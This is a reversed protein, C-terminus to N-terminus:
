LDNLPFMQGDAVFLNIKDKKVSELSSKEFIFISRETINLKIVQQTDIMNFIIVNVTKIFFLFCGDGIQYRIVLKHTVSKREATPYVIELTHNCEKESNVFLIMSKQTKIMNVDIVIEFKKCTIANATELNMTTKNGSCRELYLDFFDFAMCNNTIQVIVNILTPMGVMYPIDNM